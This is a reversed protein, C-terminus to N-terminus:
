SMARLTPKHVKGTATRPLEPAIVVSRPVKYNALRARCWRALEAPTAEAGDRLLIFAKPVEGRATDPVGVVAAERVAPHSSLVLEVESPYVNLAGVLILDKKREVITYYGDADARGLDGTHYWGNRLAEATEAPRNLYGQMVNPGRAVIEGVAGVPLPQDHDDV